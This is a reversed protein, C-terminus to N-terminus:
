KKKGMKKLAKNEEELQKDIRKLIENVVPVPMNMIESYQQNRFAMLRDIATIVRDDVDGSKMLDNIVQPRSM